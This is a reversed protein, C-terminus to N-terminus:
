YSDVNTSIRESLSSKRDRKPFRIWDFIHAIILSYRNKRGIGFIIKNLIRDTEISITVRDASGFNIVKPLNKIQMNMHSGSKSTHSAVEDDGVNGVLNVPPILTFKRKAHQVAALPAAWTDIKGSHSREFGTRWFNEVSKDDDIPGFEWPSTFSARMESWRDKWTAWGWILPYTCWGIDENSVKDLNFNNGSIIWIERDAQYENLASAAFRIFQENFYLDDELILGHDVNKFFWDISTIISAAVGLNKERTLLHFQVKGLKAKAEVAEIIEDQLCSQVPTKPGDLALYIEKTGARCLADVTRLVGEKRAFGIVLCPVPASIIM